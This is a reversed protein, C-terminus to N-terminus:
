KNHTQGGTFNNVSDQPTRFFRQSLGLLSKLSLALSETALFDGCCQRFQIRHMKGFGWSPPDAWLTPVFLSSPCNIVLVSSSFERVLISHNTLEDTKVSCSKKPTCWKESVRVCLWVQPTTYLLGSTSKLVPCIVLIACLSAGHELQNKGCTAHTSTVLVHQSSDMCGYGMNSYIRSTSFM